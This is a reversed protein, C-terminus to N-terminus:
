LVHLVQENVAKADELRLNDVHGSDHLSVVRKVADHVLLICRVHHRGLFHLGDHARLDDLDTIGVQVVM